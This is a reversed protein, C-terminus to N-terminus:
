CPNGRPQCSILRIKSSRPNPSRAHVGYCRWPDGNKQGTIIFGRGNRLRHGVKTGRQGIRRDVDIVVVGGVLRYLNGSGGAGDDPCLPHLAFAINDAAHEGIHLGVDIHHSIAIRQKPRAKTAAKPTSKKAASVRGKSKITKRASTKKAGGGLGSWKKKVATQAASRSATKKAM